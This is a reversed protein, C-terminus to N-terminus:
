KGKGTRIVYFHLEKRSTNRVNFEEGSAIYYIMDAAHTSDINVELEEEGIYLNATGESFHLYVDYDRETCPGLDQGPTLMVFQTDVITSKWFISRSSDDECLLDDTLLLSTSKSERSDSM